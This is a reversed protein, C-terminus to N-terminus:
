ASDTAATCCGFAGRSAAEGCSLAALLLAFSESLAVRVIDAGRGGGWGGGSREGSYLPAEAVWGSPECSCYGGRHNVPMLGRLIRIFKTSAAEHVRGFSTSPRLESM